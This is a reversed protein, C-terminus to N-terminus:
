TGMLLFTPFSYPYFNPFLLSFTPIIPTFFYPYYPNELYLYMVVLQKFYTIESKILLIIGTVITSLGFLSVKLNFMLNKPTLHLAEHIFM